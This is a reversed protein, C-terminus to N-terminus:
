KCVPVALAKPSSTRLSIGLHASTTRRAFMLISYVDMQMALKMNM